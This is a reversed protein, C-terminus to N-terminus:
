KYYKNYIKSYEDTAKFRDIWINLSDLLIPSNSRIAWAELHTFGIDTKIDLEPLKSALKEATKADCVTFDIDGTAVMMALQSAEYTSDQAIFITDGIEMSLNQLRLISPSDKPVYITKNGLELHNRIPEVENNAKAKRQVLVLKNLVIPNTFSYENRLHANVPINRAILDYEGSKLKQLSNELSNEVSIDFVLDSYQQLGKLLDHNFGSISDGSVYYGVPDLTTVVHLVNDKRMDNYDKRALADFQYKNIFFALVVLIILICTTVIRRKKKKSLKKNM